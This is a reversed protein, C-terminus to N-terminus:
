VRIAAPSPAIIRQRRGRHLVGESCSDLTSIPNKFIPVGTESVAHETNQMVYRVYVEDVERQRLAEATPGHRQQPQKTLLGHLNDRIEDVSHDFISLNAGISRLGRVVQEAYSKRQPGSLELLDMMLPADVYVQPHQNVVKAPKESGLDLVVESILM